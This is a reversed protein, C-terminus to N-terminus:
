KAPRISFAGLIEGAAFGRSRDHPYLEGLKAQLEPALQSGHCTLCLDGVAIAKMYRFTRQGDEAVDEYHEMQNVDGGDARRKAFSELVSREWPDPASAPNRPALSTRRVQWGQEYVMREAIAPANQRCVAIATLPGGEALAALLEGRLEGAFQRVVERSALLRDDAVSDAAALGPCLSLLFVFRTLKSM